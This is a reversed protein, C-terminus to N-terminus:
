VGAYIIFNVGVVPHLLNFAAGGGANQNTIGTANSAITAGTPASDTTVRTNSSTTLTGFGIRPTGGISQYAPSGSVQELHAHGPDTLTHVHGPDTVVHSHIPMQSTTLTHNQNGASTALAALSGVGMPSANTLNPANFHTGDVAGWTTGIVAFLESYDSRLLSQGNCLLWKTPPTAIPWMQLAGIPLFPIIVDFEMTENMECSKDRAFDVSASGRASWNNEDCMLTLAEVLARKFWDNDPLELACIITDASEGTGAFFLPM